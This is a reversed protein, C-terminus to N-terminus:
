EACAAGSESIASPGNGHKEVVIWDIGFAEVRADAKGTLPIAQEGFSKLVVRADAYLARPASGAFFDQEAVLLGVDILEERAGQGCVANAADAQAGPRRGDDLACEADSTAAKLREFIGQARATDGAVHGAAGMVGIIVAAGAITDKVVEGDAREGCQLGGVDAAHEDEVEVDMLTVAGCGNECPVGVNEGARNVAFAVEGKALLLAVEIHM